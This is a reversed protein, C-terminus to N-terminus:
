ETEHEIKIDTYTWSSATDIRPHSVVISIDRSFTRQLKLLPMQGHSRGIGPVEKLVVLLFDRPFIMQILIKTTTQLNLVLCHNMIWVKAHFNRRFVEPGPRCTSESTVFFISSTSNYYCQFIILHICLLNVNTLNIMSQELFRSTCFRMQELFSRNWLM